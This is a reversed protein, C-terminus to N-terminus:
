FSARQASMFMASRTSGSTKGASPEMRASRNTSSRPTRRSTGARLSNGSFLAPDLGIRATHAKVINAVSRDSLRQPQVHGGRRIPRFLPGGSIGAAELWDRLAAVPCAVEGRALTIASGQAKQDTKPHRITVRLGDSVEEVDAVDFSVLESRRFAGAFGLILLARDRVATLTGDPHPAMAIIRDATAPMTRRPTASNTHQIGRIIARVQEDETPSPRGGSRHVYRIAARRRQITSLKAGRRAEASLYTAVAEPAAPLVDFGREHCWLCFLGFDRWYLKLTAATPEARACEYAHAFADDALDNTTVHSAIPTPPM